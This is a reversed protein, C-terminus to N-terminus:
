VVQAPEERNTAGQQYALLFGADLLPPADELVTISAKSEFVPATNVMHVFVGVSHVTMNEELRSCERGDESGDDEAVIKLMIQAVTFAGPALSLHLTPVGDQMTVGPQVDFVPPLAGEERMFFEVEQGEEDAAGAPGPSVSKVLHDFDHTQPTLGPVHEYIHVVSKVLSFRPAGNM